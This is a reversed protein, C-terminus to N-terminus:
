GTIQGLENFTYTDEILLGNTEWAYYSQNTIIKGSTTVFYYYGDVYNIGVPANKGNVYYYIGDAKEIFGNLMKGDDGFIYTDCKLDCNTAWAYKSGTACKGDSGVFYYDEGVKTLGATGIKGNSYYYNGNDKEVIGNLMKGDAGFEYTDCKLDCNTAWAYTKSTACKGNSGVFYYDDDVKTLGANDGSIKGNKYYYIGDAKEVIGNLMKGDAGFEYTDCKLDCNTAWAYKSGTVCKGNSCIFYYYDGIKTLGANDGSIKGNKYYYIGDAKEVLGNYMKGDAGFEYTDCKLDCNTAWAYKSGTACKGSSCVFYYDDDVKTLGSPGIKGNVYYYVGDAKEVIGNLMKGDAGFEYTDCKLDCNTAWAYKSGTVCKGNSAVFYYDDNVKTLGGQGIKGNVYYYFGDAKEVIGNLMKGDAGFEYTDCKLDCNTAWAYKSGTACKGDSGVFYYDDGVKTLGATGSKGNEYYYVGNETEVIGNVMKYDDGFYYTDCPLNCQTSYAFVKGAVANGAYNFFYYDGDILMLGRQGLGDVVYHLGDADEYFGDAIDRCIGDDGFDFWYLNQDNSEHVCRYGEYRYSDEFFYRNGDIVQWGKIHYAPGYYYRTGYLTNAWVGSVLRGTEEFDYYVQGVKYHGSKATQTKTDFYYWDDGIMTWGSSLVGIKAYRYAEVTEDYFVGTYKIKDASVGEEGLDYYYGDILQIGTTKVGDTYYSDGNWGSALAGDIYLKGEYEGSYLEGCTCKLVGDIIEYTHGTAPVTTGWDVVSGCGEEADCPQGDPCSCGVCFTRGTYGNETCTAEKDTAEGAIHEHLAYKSNVIAQIEASSNKTFRHFFLETDTKYEDSAFTASTSDTFEVCGYDVALVIAVRVTADTKWVTHLSNAKDSDGTSSGTYVDNPFRLHNIHAWARVPLSALVAEGTATVKGTRKITITADNSNADVTYEATFGNAVEMNDLEWDSMGDLDITTTVSEVKSIDTAKLDYWQISGLYVRDADPNQPVLTITDMGSEAAVNLTRTITNENGSVDSVSFTFKHIGDALKLDTTTIIGSDDIAYKDSALEVGDVYVKATSIDLADNDTARATVSVENSTITQGNVDVADSLGGYSARVYNFKPLERDGVASSYDVTIDDIYITYKTFINVDSEAGNYGDQQYLYLSDLTSGLSSIGDVSIYFWGGDFSDSQVEKVFSDDIQDNNFDVEVMGIADAPIYAWFGVSIADTLDIGLGSLALAKWGANNFNSYDCILALSKEGNKVFGTEKTAIELQGEAFRGYKPAKHYYGSKFTLGSIDGDEFDYAVSSGRGFTLTATATVSSDYAFTAVVSGSTLGTEEGCATFNFGDVTGLASDSLKFNIDSDKLVVNNLGGNITATIAFKMTGNYPVIMDSYNFSIQEPIVVNITTEGVVNGDVALQVVAEGVTGNSVFVGNEVTGLSSDALQWVANEPIDASTGAPSVGTATVNVTSNPTVYTNEATLVARDFVNSPAVTSVIMLSSSISRESGDSPRNVITVENEGEQRAAFTTSGGGDLNIASVCDAELMIQALEHMTGGCSFPEQRGDLSMLVVKGDATIGVCTRCHRDTNYAGSANATVDEGNWVLVQSGGVAEVIKSEADYTNWNATGYGIVPTGNEQVGFFPRNNSKNVVTGEMVFAGSPQGTSMNYFDGNVGAVVTYYPNYNPATEDTTNRKEAAAMQETLKQMGFEACQNDKYNAYVAVDDRNIDATAVYYAMQKGDKAYAFVIDQTVGPAITSQTRKFVDHTESVFTSKETASVSMPILGVLMLVALLVASIRTKLSHKM